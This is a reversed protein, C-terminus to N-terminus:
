SNGHKGEDGLFMRTILQDTSNKKIVSAVLELEVEIKAMRAILYPIIQEATAAASEEKVISKMIEKTRAKVKDEFQKQNM